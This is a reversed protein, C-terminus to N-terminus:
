IKSEAQTPTATPAPVPAHTVLSRLKAHAIERVVFLAAPVVMFLFSVIDNLVALALDQNLHLGFFSLLGALFTLGMAIDSKVIQQNLTPM